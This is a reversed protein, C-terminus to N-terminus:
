VGVEQRIDLAHQTALKHLDEISFHPGFIAEGNYTFEERVEHEMTTLVAKLATQVIESDTMHDSIYWKRGRQVTGDAANFVVRLLAHDARDIIQFQWDRFKVATMSKSIRMVRGTLIVSM